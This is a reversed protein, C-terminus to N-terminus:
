AYRATLAAYVTKEATATPVNDRPDPTQGWTSNGGGGAYLIKGQARLVEFAEWVEDWRAGRDVHHM